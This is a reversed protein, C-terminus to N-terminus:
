CVQVAQGRQDLAREIAEGLGGQSAEVMTELFGQARASAELAAPGDPAALVERILDALERSDGSGLLSDPTIVRPFVAGWHALVPIRQQVVSLLLTSLYNYFVVVDAPIPADTPLPERWTRRVVAPFRRQIEEYLDYYDNLPHTKFTIEVDPVSRALEEVLDALLRRYERVSVCLISILSGTIVLVRRGGRHPVPPKATGPQRDHCVLRRYEVGPLQLNGLLSNVNSFAAYVDALAYVEYFPPWLPISHATALSRVGCHRAALTAARGTDWYDSAVLLAPRLCRFLDCAMAFVRGSFVLRRWHVLRVGAAGGVALLERLRAPTEPPVACPLATCFWLHRNAWVLPTLLTPFVSGVLARVPLARTERTGAPTVPSLEGAVIRWVLCRGALPAPLRGLNFQRELDTDANSVVVPAAGHRVLPQGPRRFRLVKGWLWRALKRGDEALVLGFRLLQEVAAWPRLALHHAVASWHRRCRVGARVAAARVMWQLHYVHFADPRTCRTAWYPPVRVATIRLQEVASAVVQDVCALRMLFPATPWQVALHLQRWPDPSVSGWLAEVLAQVEQWLRERDLELDDVTVFRCHPPTGQPPVPVPVKGTDEAGIQLIYWVGGHRSAQRCAWHVEAATQAVVLTRM